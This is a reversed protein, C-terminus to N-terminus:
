PSVGTRDPTELGRACGRAGPGDASRGSLRRLAGIIGVHRVAAAQEAKSLYPLLDLRTSARGDFEDHHRRCLPVVDLPDVFRGMGPQEPDILHDHERGITHAADLKARDEGCVRCRGEAQVKALAATWVRDPPPTARMRTKRAPGAARQLPTRRTITM